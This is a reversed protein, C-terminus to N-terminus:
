GARAAAALSGQQRLPVPIRPRGRGQLAAVQDAQRGRARDAPPRRRVPAPRAGAGPGAHDVPGTTAGSCGAISGGARTAPAPRSWVHRAGAGRRSRGALAAGLLLAGVLHWATMRGMRIEEEAHTPGDRWRQATAPDGVALRERQHYSGDPGLEWASPDELEQALIRGAPPPLRSRAGPGRGRGPPAPQALALRRLRHFVRGRGRQGFHYIRAHELFRGVTARVRIRESLGPVGPKLTCLGGSSWISRSAPGRPTM